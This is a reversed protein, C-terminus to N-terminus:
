LIEKLSPHARDKPSLIPNSEPWSIALEPDNWVIGRDASAHYYEDVKYLVQTHNVLTCFGHAFGKPIFLQKKNAASLTIGFSQGYSSSDKRIDVAVDWISGSIVRILKSQAYPQDQYHLGRLTGKLTSLSENDQVFSVDLQHEDLKQQHYSEMFYGRDDAIVKPEIIYVGALTSETIKM